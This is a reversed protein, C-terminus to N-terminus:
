AETETPKDDPAALKAMHERILLQDPESYLEFRAPETRTDTYITTYTRLSNFTTDYAIGVDLFVAERGLLPVIIRPLRSMVGFGYMALQGEEITPHPNNVLVLYPYAEKDRNLYSPLREDIPQQAHLYDIEVLNIGSQLTELRKRQYKRYHSGPPKNAPSLLEIRTVPQNTATRYIMLATLDTENVSSFIRVPTDAAIDTQIVVDGGATNRQRFIMIDPETRSPPTGNTDPTDPTQLSLQLSEEQAIYYAPPLAKELEDGIHTIHRGHFGKWGKVHQLYSNLHPNIGPYQNKSM